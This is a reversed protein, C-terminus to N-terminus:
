KSLIKRLNELSEVAKERPRVEICYDLVDFDKLLGLYYKFDILGPQIVRHSKGNTINHLHVQKVAALNRFFFERVETNISHNRNHMKEFDWCLGLATSKVYEELTEIVFPQLNVNEICIQVKGDALELLKDLNSKFIQKYLEIDQEAFLQSPETDTPFHAPVGPHITIIKAGIKKAFEILDSYYSMIGRDTRGYPYVLSAGDPAHLNICVNLAESGIKIVEVEKDSLDEFGLHLSDMAIQIGSFGNSAAFELAAIISYDYIVHYSIRNLVNEFDM